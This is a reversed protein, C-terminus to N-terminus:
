SEEAAGSAARDEGVVVVSHIAAKHLALFDAEAPTGECTANWLPLYAREDDLVPRLGDVGLRLSGLYAGGEAEVRVRYWGPRAGNRGRKLASGNRRARTTQGRM